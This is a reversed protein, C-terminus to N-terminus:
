SIPTKLHTILYDVYVSFQIENKDMIIPDKIM